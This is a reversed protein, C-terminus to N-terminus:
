KSPYLELTQARHESQGPDIIEYKSARLWPAIYVHDIHLLPTGRPWSALWQWSGGTRAHCLGPTLVDISASGRPANFDGAVVDPMPIHDPGTSQQLKSIADHAQMAVSMRGLAPNSPMDIYYIVLPRGLRQTTDLQVVLLDIPETQDLERWSAGILSFVRRMAGTLMEPMRAHEPPTTLPIIHRHSATIAFRSFLSVDGVNTGTAGSGLAALVEQRQAASYRGGLLLIDPLSRRALGALTGDPWPRGQAAANWHTISLGRVGPAPKFSLTLAGPFNIAGALTWIAAVLAAGTIILRMRRLRWGARAFWSILTGLLALLALVAVLPLEGWFLFQSTVYRDTLVQGTLWLMAVALAAFFIAGALLKALKTSWPV